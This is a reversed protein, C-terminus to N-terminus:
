HRRARRGCSRRDAPRPRQSTTLWPRPSTTPRTAAMFANGRSIAGSCRGQMATVSVSVPQSSMGAPITATSRGAACATSTRECTAILALFWFTTSAHQSSWVASSSSRLMAPSLSLTVISGPPWTAQDCGVASSPVAAAPPPCVVNGLILTSLGGAGGAGTSGSESKASCLLHRPPLLRCRASSFGELPSYLTGALAVTGKPMNSSARRSGALSPKSSSSPSSNRSSRQGCARARTASSSSSGADSSVATESSSLRAPAGSGCPAGQCRARLLTQAELHVSRATELRRCTPTGSSASERATSACGSASAAYAKTIWVREGIAPARSSSARTSSTTPRPSDSTLLEGPRASDAETPGEPAGM